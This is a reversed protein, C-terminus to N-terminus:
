RNRGSLLPAYVLDYYRKAVREWGYQAATALGEERMTATASSNGLVTEAARVIGDVDEVEALYGNVGQKVVDPAMGVKTSVIPVGTALSELVAKPGGEDRSTVLYLDLARYYDVIDLYNSLNRHVFPIGRQALERKVWGRSPGTLVVAVKHQRALRDVVEVFVDPGKITKPSMGDGWGVGDKQFSGICVTDDSLALQQRIHNRDSVRGPTFHHLDVGLPITVVKREPAGWSLIRSRGISCSTVIAAVQDAIEPVQRIQRQATESPDHEDGHFWTFLTRNSPTLGPDYAAFFLARSGFHVVQGQIGKATTTITCPVGVQAQVGETIYRGDWNISWNRNEVVYYVMSCPRASSSRVRQLVAISARRGRGAISRTVKLFSTLAGGNGRADFGM